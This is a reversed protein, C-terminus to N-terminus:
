EGQLNRKFKNIMKQQYEGCYRGDLFYKLAENKFRDWSEKEYNVIIPYFMAENKEAARLDGVADGVMLVNNFGKGMLKRICEAKSGDNQTMVIDTYKILGHTTWEDRVSQPDASSVVAVYSTKVADELAEKAGEFPKKSFKPLTKISENVARSWSLAKKLIGYDYKELASNSLEKTKNVWKRLDNIGEITTYKENVEELSKLLGCFRNIGRTMTYLNIQNWRELIEDNWKELGWERVMCPGFCKKHKIDMTDMVCGDSDVCILNEM